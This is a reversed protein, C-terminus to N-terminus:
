AQWEREHNSREFLNNSGISGLNEHRLGERGLLLNLANRAGHGGLEDHERGNPRKPREEIPLVSIGDNLIDRNFASLIRLPVQDVYRPVYKETRARAKDESIEGKKQM